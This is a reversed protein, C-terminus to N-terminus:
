AAGNKIAVEWFAAELANGGARIEVLCFVGFPGTLAAAYEPHDARRGM